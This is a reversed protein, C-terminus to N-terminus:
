CRKSDRFITFNLINLIFHILLIFFHWKGGMHFIKAKYSNYDHIHKEHCKLGKSKSCHYWRAYYEHDVEFDTDNIPKISEKDKKQYRISSVPIIKEVKDRSYVIQAFKIEGM